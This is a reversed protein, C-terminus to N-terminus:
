VSAVEEKEKQLAYILEALKNTTDEMKTIAQGKFRMIEQKAGNKFEVNLQTEKKSAPRYEFRKFNYINVAHLGFLTTFKSSFEYGLRKKIENIPQNPFKEQSVPATLIVRTGDAKIAELYKSGNETTSSVICNVNKTNCIRRLNQENFELEM